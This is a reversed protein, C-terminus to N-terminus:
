KQEYGVGLKTIMAEIDQKNYRAYKEIALTIAAEKIINAASGNLTKTAIIADKLEKKTKHDRKRSSLSNIEKMQDILIDTAISMKTKTM